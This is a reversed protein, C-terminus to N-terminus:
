SDHVGASQNLFPRGALDKPIGQMGISLMQHRAERLNAVERWFCRQASCWRTQGLRRTPAAEMRTTWQCCINAPLGIRLQCGDDGAASDSAVGYARAQLELMVFLLYCIVSKLWGSRVLKGAEKDDTM